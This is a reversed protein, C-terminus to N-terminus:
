RRWAKWAVAVPYAASAASLFAVRWGDRWGGRVVFLYPGRVLARAVALLVQPVGGDVGSAELSTYAVFKRRYAALTPYSDHRLTGPLDVITGDVDLREHVQAAGGVVPHATVRAAATRVLRVLREDSWGLGRIPRGCFWTTRAVRFAAVDCGPTAGLVADRLEDDLVEDADLMFTWPTAAAELAFRRADVFGSWPRVIVRAGCRRALAVTGDRSEADIVLVEARVPIGAM